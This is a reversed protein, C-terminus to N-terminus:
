SFEFRIDYRLAAMWQNYDSETLARMHFTATGSDVHISRNAPSSSFAANSLSIEDRIVEGQRISYSLTGNTHLVFYRRAYGTPVYM